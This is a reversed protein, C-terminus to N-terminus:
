HSASAASAAAVSESPAGGPPGFAAEDMQHDDDVGTVDTEENAVPLGDGSPIAAPDLPLDDMDQLVDTEDTQLTASIEM